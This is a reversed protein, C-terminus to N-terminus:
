KGGKARDHAIKFIGGIILCLILISGMSFNELFSNKFFSGIGNLISIIDAM